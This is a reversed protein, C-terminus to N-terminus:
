FKILVLESGGNYDCTFVLGKRTVYMDCYAEAGFFDLRELCGDSKFLAKTGRIKSSFEKLPKNDMLLNKSYLYTIISCIKRVCGNTFGDSEFLRQLLLKLDEGSWKKEM